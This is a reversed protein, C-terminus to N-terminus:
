WEPPPPVFVADLPSTGGIWRQAPRFRGILEPPLGSPRMLERHWRHLSEITLSTTTADAVASQVAALNDAVWAATTGAAEDDLEAAAVLAIPARVGEINSSAVGEARLLLRM